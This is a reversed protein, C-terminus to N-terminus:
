LPEPYAQVKTEQDATIVIQRTWDKFGSTIIRLTYNGPLLGNVNVSYAPWPTIGSYEDNIYIKSNEQGTNIYLTGFASSYSITESRTVAAGSGPEPYAYIKTTQDAAIVVQKTWDKLGTTIIKLTYTGPFLGNVTVSYAPWPTIGSYENNVYIKSDAQVTNINLIGFTSTNSVIENRTVAAGSGPEPYAYIKTTQEATIVVQKTWDKFSPTIIKLTYTGPLLGNVTVSYAPWPTIGSYEDNIYISSKEQGTIVYLMGFTSSFSVTESRTVATGSGPEPYAYVKTTQEATIEFQKTWDKFGVTVIKLTHTGPLLGNVTVSYAPWPTIGSYEDDVYIKSDPQGTNIYLNGPNSSTTAPIPTPTPTKVPATTTSTSTTTSSPAPTKTTAPKTTGTAAPKTSTVNSTLGDQDKNGGQMLIIALIIAAVVVVGAIIYFPKKNDKRTGKAIPKVPPPAEAKQPVEVIQATKTGLLTEVTDALKQLYKEIPPTLADLWHTASLFLEMSETPEVDEIRFPLIPIGKSVAREVERLVQPSLNAGSSFVLIFIRSRNIGDLISAAYQQGALVDRPAIWCRIKRSELTACVADAVTKDQSSYSIFVDHAM